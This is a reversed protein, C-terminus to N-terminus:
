IIQFTIKGKDEFSSKEVAPFIWWIDGFSGSYFFIEYKGNITPTTKALFSFCVYGPSYKCKKLDFKKSEVMAHWNEQLSPNNNLVWNNTINPFEGDKYKLYLTYGEGADYSNKDLRFSYENDGNDGIIGPTGTHRIYFSFKEGNKPQFHVVYLGLTSLKASMASGLVMEGPLGTAITDRRNINKDNDINYFSWFGDITKGDETEALLIINIDKINQVDITDGQKVAQRADENKAVKEKIPVNQKSSAYSMFIKVKSTPSSLDYDNGECATILVVFLLLSIFYNIKKM